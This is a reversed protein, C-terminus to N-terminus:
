RRSMAGMQAFGSMISPILCAEAGGTIVIDCVGSRLLDRAIGIATAGSACATATVLNPGRAGCEMAIYGAVMNVALMPILMPSVRGPGEELLTRHQKEWTAAGGIGSGIVGGVRAGDWTGPDLGSDALAERAAVLALQTCRDLRWAKRQGLLASGTIAADFLRPHSAM